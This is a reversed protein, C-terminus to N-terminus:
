AWIINFWIPRPLRVAAGGVAVFVAGGGASGPAADLLSAAGALRGALSSSEDAAVDAGRAFRKAAACVQM